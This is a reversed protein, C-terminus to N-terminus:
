KAQFRDPENTLDLMEDMTLFLYITYWHKLNEVSLNAKWSFNNLRWKRNPEKRRIGESTM